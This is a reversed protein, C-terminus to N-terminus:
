IYSTESLSPLVRRVDVRPDPQSSQDTWGPRVGVRPDPKFKQGFGLGVALSNAVTILDFMTLVALLSISNKILESDSWRMAAFWQMLYRCFVFYKFILYMTMSSFSNVIAISLLFCTKSIVTSADKTLSFSRFDASSYANLSNSSNISQAAFFCTVIKVDIMSVSSKIKNCSTLSYIQHICKNLFNFNSEFWSRMM